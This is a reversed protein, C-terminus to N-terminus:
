LEATSEPEPDPSVCTPYQAKGDQIVYDWDVVVGYSTSSGNLIHHIVDIAHQQSRARVLVKVTACFLVEPEDHDLIRYCYGDPIGRVATIVGSQVVITITGQDVVSTTHVM